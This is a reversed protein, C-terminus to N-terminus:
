ETPCSNHRTGVDCKVGHSKLHDYLGVRTVNCYPPPPLFCDALACMLYHTVDAIGLRTMKDRITTSLM